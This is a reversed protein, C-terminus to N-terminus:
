ADLVGGRRWLKAIDRECAHYDLAAAPERAVVVLRCEDVMGSRYKRYVERIYRKVRNRTVATGVRRSVALGLKRGNGARTDVYCIFAPGVTKTGHRFVDLFDERRTLRERRPFREQGPMQEAKPGREPRSVAGRM